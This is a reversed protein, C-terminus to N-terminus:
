RKTGTVIALHGIHTTLWAAVRTPIFLKGLPLRKIPFQRIM